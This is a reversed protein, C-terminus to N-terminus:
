ATQQQTQREGGGSEFWRLRLAEIERRALDDIEAV